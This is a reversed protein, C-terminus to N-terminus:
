VIVEMALVIGCRYQFTWAKSHTSELSKKLIGKRQKSRILNQSALITKVFLFHHKGNIILPKNQGIDLSLERVGKRMCIKLTQLM